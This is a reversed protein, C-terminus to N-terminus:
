ASSARGGPPTESVPPAVEPPKSLTPPPPPKRRKKHPPPPPPPPSGNILLDGLIVGWGVLSMFSLTQMVSVGITLSVLTGIVMGLVLGIAFKQLLHEKGELRAQALCGLFGVWICVCSIYVFPQWWMHEPLFLINLVLGLGGLAFLITRLLKPQIIKMTIMATINGDSPTDATETGNLRIASLCCINEKLFM